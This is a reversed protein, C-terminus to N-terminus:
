LGQRGAPLTGFQERVKKNRYEFIAEVKKRVFLSHAISGLFFFPVQYHVLDTMEVSNAVERFHHQHHWLQFPGRRQEDVFFHLREVHTIETMWYIPIGLLPKVYYTIVQGAYTEGAMMESTVKLNLEPPTITILNTAKSFFDWVSQLPAPILLVQKLQYVKSM